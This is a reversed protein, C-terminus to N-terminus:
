RNLGIAYKRLEKMGDLELKAIIRACYSEVTRNSISLAAAIETTSNGTNLLNLIRREKDSLPKQAPRGGRAAMREALSRAARPSVYREGALIAELAELLVASDERKTVYGAAGLSFAREILDADEHMSYVLAAVPRTRLEALLDLGSEGSLSIDVVVVDPRNADVARLTAEITETEGCVRHGSQTFLLTLVQRMAPHDDAICIGSQKNHDREAM